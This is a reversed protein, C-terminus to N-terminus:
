LLVEWKDRLRYECVQKEAMRLMKWIISQLEIIQDQKNKSDFYSDSLEDSLKRMQELIFTDNVTDYVDQPLFYKDRRRIAKKHKRTSDVSSQLKKLM